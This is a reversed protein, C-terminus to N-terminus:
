RIIGGLRKILTLALMIKLLDPIIFPIVCMGLITFIGITGSSAAYVAMFWVTGVIYCIILGLVMSIGLVPLSRGFFKEVGWMFLAAFLFGVIYGGLNGFIVGPGGTFGAFVPIGIIGLLIYIFIATTGKKGGLLGIILFVAFTQLTIPVTLPISIWSCITIIVIGVATYAIDSTKSHTTKNEKSLFTM